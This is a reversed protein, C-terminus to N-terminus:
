MVPVVHCVNSIEKMRYANMYKLLLLTLKLSPPLFFTDGSGVFASIGSLSM